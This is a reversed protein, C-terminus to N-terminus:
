DLSGSFFLWAIGLSDYLCDLYTGNKGFNRYVMLGLRTAVAGLRYGAGLGVQGSKDSVAIAAVM